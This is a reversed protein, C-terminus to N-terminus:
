DNTENQAEFQKKLEFSRELYGKLKAQVKGYVTDVPYEYNEDSVGAPVGTLIEIGEEVTSVQYIHFEKKKVADIVEKKLM